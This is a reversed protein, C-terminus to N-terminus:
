FQQLVQYIPQFVALLVCVVLCGMVFLLVPEILSTFSDLSYTVDDEYFDALKNLMVSTAGTEEGVKCMQSLMPPYYDSLAMLASMSEGSSVEERMSLINDGIVPNGASEGAIKMAHLMPIGCDLMTGMTRCFRTIAVKRVVPGVLPLHLLIWGWQRSGVESRIWRVFLFVAVILALVLPIMIMPEQAANTISIMIRTMFPLELNLGEFLSVFTPFVVTVVFIVVMMSVALIIFPYAVASNVKKRLEFERELLTALRGLMEDMAGSLEGARIMSLYLSSFAEPHEAMAQSMSHGSEIKSVLDEAIVGLKKDQGGTSLGNLSRIVPIGANFLTALQRTFIALAYANVSKEFIKKTVSTINGQLSVVPTIKTVTYNVRRLDRVAAEASVAKIKAEVSRGRVDTAKYLFEQM